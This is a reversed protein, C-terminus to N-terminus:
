IKQRNLIILNSYIGLNRKKWYKKWYIYTICQLKSVNDPWGFISFPFLGSSFWTDLVDPDQELIIDNIDLGYKKAAKEKAENESHASVWYTDDTQYFANRM